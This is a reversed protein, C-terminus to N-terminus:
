VDDSGAAPSAALGVGLPHVATHMDHSSLFIGILVLLSASMRLSTCGSGAILLSLLLTIIPESGKVVQVFSAALTIYSADMTVTGIVHIASLQFVRRDFVMGMIGLSPAQGQWSCAKSLVVAGCVASIFLKAVLIDLLTSAAFLNGDMSATQDQKM